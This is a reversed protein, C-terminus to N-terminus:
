KQNVPAGDHDETRGLLLDVCDHIEQILRDLTTRIILGFLTPKRLGTFAM